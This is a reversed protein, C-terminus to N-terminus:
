RRSWAAIQAEVVRRAERYDDRADDGIAALVQHELEIARERHGARHELDALLRWADIRGKPEVGAQELEGLAREAQTRADHERGLELLAMGFNTRVDAVADGTKGAAEYIALAREFHTVATREDHALRACQALGVEIAGVYPHDPRLEGRAREYLAKADGCRERGRALEALSIDSGAVLDHHDGYAAVFIARAREFHAEADDLKELELEQTGLDHLTRGVEPHDRGLEVEEIALGKRLMALGGEVDVEDALTDGLKGYVGALEIRATRDRGARPELLAIARRYETVAEPARGLQGLADGRVVALRHERDLHARTVLAAAADCVGLADLPHGQQTAITAEELLADLTTADDDGRAAERAATAVDTRARDRDGLEREIGGAALLARAITRPDGTSEAAAVVSAVSARADRARGARVLAELNAVSDVVARPATIPPPAHTACGDPHPLAALADLSRDVTAADPSSWAALQARLEGLADDLCAERSARQAPEVRCAARRGLRWANAWDDIASTTTTIATDRHPAAASFTRAIDARGAPSWVADVLSANDDCDDRHGPWLAFATAALAALSAGAIALAPWVRRPRPEIAAVLAAVSPWRAHPDLALGRRLVRDLAGPVRRGGDRIRGAAMETWKAEVSAGAFPHVGHVAEFATVAFAYQDSSADPPAGEVLEPALYAPTGSVTGTETLRGLVGPTPAVAPTGDGSRALGFDAVRARGHRDVLVNEPKFDRHVLGAVHAAALGRGAQALVAVTDALARPVALWAALTEGEVLEMALFPEGAFDGVEYVTVVNPHQLQAAARAERVLRARDADGADAHLRKLAVARGLELDDARWVIGMGGRGIRERVLYRGVRLNPGWVPADRDRVLEALLRRCSDCDDVHQEVSVRAAAPLADSAFALARTEDLCPANVAAIYRVGAPLSL